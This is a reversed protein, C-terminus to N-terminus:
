WQSIWSNPFHMEDYEHEAINLFWAHLVSTTLILILVSASVIRLNSPTDIYTLYM